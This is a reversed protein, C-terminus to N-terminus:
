SQQAQPNQGRRALFRMHLRWECFTKKGAACVTAKRRSVKKNKKKQSHPACADNDCHSHMKKRGQLALQLKTVRRRHRALIALAIATRRHRVMRQRLHSALGTLLRSQRYVFYDCLLLKLKYNLYPNM